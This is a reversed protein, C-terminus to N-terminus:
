RNDVWITEIYEAEEWNECSNVQTVGGFDCIVECTESYVVSIPDAHDHQFVYVTEGEYNYKDIKARPSGPLGSLTEAIFNQICESYKPETSKSCSFFFLLIFLFVFLNNRFIVSFAVPRIFDKM